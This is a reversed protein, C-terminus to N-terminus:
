LLNHSHYSYSKNYTLSGGEEEEEMLPTYDKGGHPQTQGYTQSQSMSLLVHPLLAAVKFINAHNPEAGQM